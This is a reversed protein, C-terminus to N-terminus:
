GGEKKRYKLAIIQCVYEYFWFNISTTVVAKLLGPSLGKFLGRWSEQKVTKIMCDVMGSYAETRGMGQRGQEFGQVQLRKKTTDFPFVAAKACLGALAGCSLSGTMSIKKGEELSISTILPELSQTFLTYFGFQLGSYPAITAFTPLIGKFFASPGERAMMERAAHITGQYLRFCNFFISEQLFCIYQHM